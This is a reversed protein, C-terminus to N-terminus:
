KYPCNLSSSPSYDDCCMCATYLTTDPELGNPYGPVNNTCKGDISDFTFSNDFTPFYMFDFETQWYGNSYYDIELYFEPNGTVYPLFCNTSNVPNCYVGHLHQTDHAYFEIDSVQVNENRWYEMTFYTRQETDKANLSLQFDVALLRSTDINNQFIGKFHATLKKCTIPGPQRPTTPVIISQQTPCIPCSQQTPCIPCSQQTPVIIPEQTPCIPCSQQTPCSPASTTTVKESSWKNNPCGLLDSPNYEGCCVCTHLKNLDPLYGDDSLSGLQSGTCTDIPETLVFSNNFFPFYLLHYFNGDPGNIDLKFKSMSKSFSASCGNEEISCWQHSDEYYFDLEFDSSRSYQENWKDAEVFIRKTKLDADLRVQFQVNPGTNTSHKNQLTGAFYAVLSQCYPGAPPDINKPQEVVNSLLKEKRLHNKKSSQVALLCNFLLLLLLFELKM